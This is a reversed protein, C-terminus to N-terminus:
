TVAVCLAPLRTAHTAAHTLWDIIHAFNVGGHIKRHDTLQYEDSKTQCENGSKDADYEDHAVLREWKEGVTRSLDM